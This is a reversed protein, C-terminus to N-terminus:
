RGLATDPNTAVGVREVLLKKASSGFTRYYSNVGHSGQSISGTALAANNTNITAGTGTGVWLKYSTSSATSDFRYLWTQLNTQNIGTYVGVQHM